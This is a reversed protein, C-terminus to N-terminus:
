DKLIINSTIVISRKYTFWKFFYCECDCKKLIDKLFLYIKQYVKYIYLVVNIKCHRFFTKYHIVMMFTFVTSAFAVDAAESM